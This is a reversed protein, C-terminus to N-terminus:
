PVSTSNSTYSTTSQSRFIKSEKTNYVTQHQQQSTIDVAHVHYQPCCQQTRGCVFVANMSSIHLDLAQEHQHGDLLSAPSAKGMQDAAAACCLHKAPAVAVIVAPLKACMVVISNGTVM